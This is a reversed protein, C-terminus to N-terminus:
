AAHLVRHTPLAALPSRQGPLTASHGWGRVGGAEGSAVGEPQQSSAAPQQSSAAPQQSSLIPRICSLHPRDTGRNTQRLGRHAGSVPRVRAPHGLPGRRAGDTPCRLSVPSKCGPGAAQEATTADNTRAPRHRRPLYARRLGLLRSNSRQHNADYAPLANLNQHIVAPERQLFLIIRLNGNHVGFSPDLQASRKKGRMGHPHIHFAGAMRMISQQRHLNPTALWRDVLRFVPLLSTLRRDRRRSPSERDPHDGARLLLADRQPTSLRRPPKPHVAHAAFLYRPQSIHSNRLPVLSVEGM